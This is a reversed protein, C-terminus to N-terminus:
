NEHKIVMKSILILVEDESFTNDLSNQIIKKLMSRVEQNEDYKDCVENIADELEKCMKM